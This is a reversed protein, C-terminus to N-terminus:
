ESCGVINCAHEYNKAAEVNMLMYCDVVVYSFSLPLDCELVLACLKGWELNMRRNIWIWEKGWTGESFLFWDKKIKMKRKYFKEEWWGIHLWENIKSSLNISFIVINIQDQLVIIFFQGTHLKHYFHVHLSLERPTAVRVMCGSKQCPLGSKQCQLGHITTHNKSCHLIM